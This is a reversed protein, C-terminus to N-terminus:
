SRFAVWCSKLFSKQCNTSCSYQMTLLWRMFEPNCAHTTRLRHWLDWPANVPTMGFDSYLRRAVNGLQDEKLVVKSNNRDKGLTWEFGKTQPDSEEVDADSSNVLKWGKLATLEHVGYEGVGKGKLALRV